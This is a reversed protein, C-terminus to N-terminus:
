GAPQGRGSRFGALWREFDKATASAEPSVEFFEMPRELFRPSVTRMGIGVNNVVLDVDGLLGLAQEAGVQVAFPDRLVDRPVAV